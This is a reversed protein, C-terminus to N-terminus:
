WASWGGDVCVNQGTMYSGADSCLLATAGKVEFALGVRNLPNRQSLKEIFEPNELKTLAFPFPGPSICNVRIKQVSLFSALYKTLQIVGAKAAGYSPPNAYRDDAYLRYDPAVHGYMSAINLINGQKLALLPSFAKITRFVGTLCVEVDYRWEELTISTFNNKKGSWGCNVLIDIGAPFRSAVDNLLKEISNDATIDVQMAIVNVESFRQSLLDAFESNRKYNRSAIIIDAGLEALAASIEKGLFGSGGIILAVKNELSFLDKLSPSSGLESSHM